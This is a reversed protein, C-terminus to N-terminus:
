SLLRGLLETTLLGVIALAPYFLWWPMAKLYTRM